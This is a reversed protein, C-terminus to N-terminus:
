LNEDWAALNQLHLKDWVFLDCSGDYINDVCTESDGCDNISAAEGFRSIMDDYYCLKFIYYNHALM